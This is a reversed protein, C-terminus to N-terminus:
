MAVAQEERLLGHHMTGRRSREGCYLNYSSEAEYHKADIQPAKRPRM